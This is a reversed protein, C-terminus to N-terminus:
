LRATQAKRYLSKGRHLKTLLTGPRLKQQFSWISKSRPCLDFGRGGARAPSEHCAGFLSPLASDPMRTLLRRDALVSAAADLSELARDPTLRCERNRRRELAALASRGSTVRSPTRTLGVSENPSRRASSSGARISTRPTLNTRRAASCTSWAAWECTVAAPPDLWTRTSGLSSRGLSEVRGSTSIPLRMKRFPNRCWSMLSKCGGPPSSCEISKRLSRLRTQACTSLAM